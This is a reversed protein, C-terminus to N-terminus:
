RIETDDTFRDFAKGFYIEDPFPKRNDDYHILMVIHSVTAATSALLTLRQIQFM